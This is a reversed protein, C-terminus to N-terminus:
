MRVVSTVPVTLRGSSTLITIGPSLIVMCTLRMAGTASSSFIRKAMRSPPRVTPAPTTVLTRSHPATPEARAGRGPRTRAGDCGPGSGPSRSAPKHFTGKGSSDFLWFACDFCLAILIRCCRRCVCAVDLSL